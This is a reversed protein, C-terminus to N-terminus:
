PHVIQIQGMPTTRKFTALTQGSQDDVYEIITQDDSPLLAGFMLNNGAQFRTLGSWRTRNVYITNRNASFDRRIGTELPDDASLMKDWGKVLDGGGVEELKHVWAPKHTKTWVANASGQRMDQTPVSRLVVDVLAVVLTAAILRLLKAGGM